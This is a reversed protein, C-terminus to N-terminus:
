SITNRKSIQLLTEKREREGGGGRRGEEREKKKFIRTVLGKNTIHMLFFIKEWDSAQRKKKNKIVKTSCFKKIKIYGLM